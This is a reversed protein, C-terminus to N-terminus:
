FVNNLLSFYIDMLKRLADNDVSFTFDDLTRIPLVLPSTGTIFAAQYSSLSPYPIREEQVPFGNNKCIDLVRKRATGPLVFGTPATYYTDNKIFFINSRSGETVYGEKDVLVVEYAKHEQLLRNALTRLGNNIYKIGPNNRMARCSITHVGNCYDAESPYSHPIQYIYEDIRSETIHLVYKINGEEIHELLILEKLKDEIHLNKLDININSKKISNDLRLLNDNLFIPHFNFVRIVEYLSLGREFITESFDPIDTVTNNVLFM